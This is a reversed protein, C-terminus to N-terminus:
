AHIKRHSRWLDFIFFVTVLAACLRGYDTPVVALFALGVIVMIM